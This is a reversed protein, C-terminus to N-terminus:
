GWPHYHNNTYFRGGLRYKATLMWYRAGCQTQLWWDASTSNGKILDFSTSVSGQSASAIRGVPTGLDNDDLTALHCTALYLLVERTTTLPPNYPAISSDDNGVFEVAMLFYADLLEDPYKEEDSFHPYWKRFKEPDFVVVAM